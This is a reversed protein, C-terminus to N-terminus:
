HECWATCPLVTRPFNGPYRDATSPPYLRLDAADGFIVGMPRGATLDATLRAAGEVWRRGLLQDQATTFRENGGSPARTIEGLVVGVSTEYLDVRCFPLGVARSLHRAAATMEALSEPVAISPDHPRGIAVEGFDVAAEDIFKLRISSARGHEGVTRVLIQGVQGYFMYFKVDPPIPGGDVGHLLEEAFFPARARQGLARLRAVLEDQTMQRDTGVVRYRDQEVRELPFVAVSGAGGDSKVVFRDPLDSLRVATLTPWVDYVEPVRVGHSAGLELNRLKLPLQLAASPPWTRQAREAHFERIYQRISTRFSASGLDDLRALEADAATLRRELEAARREAAAVRDLQTTIAKHQQTMRRQTRQLARRQQRSTILVTAIAAGGILALGGLAVRWLGLAAAIATALTGLVALGMLMQSRWGQGFM